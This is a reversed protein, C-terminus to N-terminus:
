SRGAVREREMYSKWSRAIFESYAPPVAERLEDRTMWYIGMAKRAEKVGSFNGVVHMFEDKAAPRGMKALPCHHRPHAPPAVPFSCEFLRHRYVRLGFMTGCLEIPNALPSGPVNEIVYCTGDALLRERIEFILDPHNKNRIQQARSYAQCPPSAWILDFGALPFSLADDQIFRFPYRPQSSIDVGCVEFGACHLGM